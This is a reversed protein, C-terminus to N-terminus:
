IMDEEIACVSLKMNTPLPINETFIGHDIAINLAVGTFLKEEHSYQEALANEVDQQDFHM